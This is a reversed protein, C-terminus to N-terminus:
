SNRSVLCIKGCICECEWAFSRHIKITTSRLVKLDGIQEGTLDRIVRTM